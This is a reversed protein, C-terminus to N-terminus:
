DRFSLRYRTDLSLRLGFELQGVFRTDDVGSVNGANSVLNAGLDAGIWFRPDPQYRIRTSLRTTQEVTGLLITEQAEPDDPFPSMIDGEGQWLVQVQPEISLQPAATPHFEAAASLHVFDSFQTGIGRLLYLYRGEPQHTNYALATVARASAALDMWSKAAYAIEGVVGISAPETSNLFDFDDLMLQLSGTGRRWQGWATAAFVGNHEENKPRNDVLFLYTHVPSLFKLSPSTGPGSYLASELLSFALHPNPRWDLRHAALYRNIPTEGRYDAARGGFHGDATAADLEGLISRLALRQGGVRILALDYSRPNASVLLGESGIPAWHNSFRGVYLSAYRTNIGAYADQNRVYLRNVADLGDPDTDYYVDHRLGLQLVVSRVDLYIQLEANPFVRADGAELLPNAGDTYRLPDIRDNNAIAAGAALWGGIAAGRKRSKRREVRKELLRAWYREPGKLRKKRVRDLAAEIEGETYPLATPHLELLYGRRQLLRIYEYSWDEVPVLRNSQGVAGTPWAAVCLLLVVILRLRRLVANRVASNGPDKDFYVTAKESAGAM